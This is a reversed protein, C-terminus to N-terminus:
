SIYTQVATLLDKFRSTRETSDFRWPQQAVAYDEASPAAKQQSPAARLRSLIRTKATM